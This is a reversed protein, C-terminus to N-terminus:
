PVAGQDGVHGLDVLSDRTWGEEAGKKTFLILDEDGLEFRWKFSPDKRKCEILLRNAAKKREMAIAPCYDKISFGPSNKFAARIRARKVDEERVEVWMIQSSLNNAM